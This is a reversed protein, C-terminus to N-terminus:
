PERPHSPMQDEVDIVYHRVGKDWTSLLVAAEDAVVARDVNSGAFARIADYSAWRTIVVIEREDGSGSMVTAGLYGDLGRLSPQVHQEFHERYRAAKAASARACWVRAIVPCIPLKTEQM